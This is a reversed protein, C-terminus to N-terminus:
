WPSPSRAAIPVAMPPTVPGNMKPFIISVPSGDWTAIAADPTKAFGASVLRKDIADRVRKMQFGELDFSDKYAYTKYNAFTAGPDYDVSTTLTSCAAFALASVAVAALPLTSRM